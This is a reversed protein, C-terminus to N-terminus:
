HEWLCLPDAYMYGGEGDPVIYELHLHPGTSNGTSGILGIIEGRQVFQGPVCYVTSCHGYRTYCDFLNHFILIQNGYGDDYDGALVVIGDFLALVSDGYDYGLDLGAHFRYDGSIPHVRWGFHSTIPLEAFAVPCLCSLFLFCIIILRRVSFM